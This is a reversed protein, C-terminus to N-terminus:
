ADIWSLDIGDDEYSKAKQRSVDRALDIWRQDPLNSDKTKNCKWCALVLNSKHNTGRKSRPVVHETNTKIGRLDVMYYFCNGIQRKWQKKRWNTYNSTKKWRYFGISVEAVTQKRATKTKRKKKKHTKVSLSKRDIVKGSVTLIPM